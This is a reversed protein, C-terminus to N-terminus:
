CVYHCKGANLIMHNEHHSWQHLIMLDMELNRRIRNLDKGPSYLTAM